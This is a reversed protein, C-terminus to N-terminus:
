NVLAVLLIVICRLLRREILDTVTEPIAALTRSPNAPTVKLAAGAAATTYQV